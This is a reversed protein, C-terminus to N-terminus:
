PGATGGVTSVCLEEVPHGGEKHPSQENLFWGRDKTKFEYVFHKDRADLRGWETEDEDTEWSTVKEFELEEYDDLETELWEHIEEGQEDLAKNYLDLKNEDTYEEIISQWDLPYESVVM